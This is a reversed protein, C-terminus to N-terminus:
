LLFKLNQVAYFVAYLVRLCNKSEKFRRGTPRPPTKFEGTEPKKEIDFTPAGSMPLVAPKGRSNLANTCMM